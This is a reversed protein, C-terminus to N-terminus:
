SNEGFIDLWEEVEEPSLDRSKQRLEAKLEDGEAARREADGILANFEHIRLAAFGASRARGYIKRDSSVVTCATTNAAGEILQLIRTDAEIGKGALLARVTGLFVGGEGVHTDPGGDFYITARGGIRRCFDGVVRIAQGRCDGDALSLGRSHGILNNGDVLYHM